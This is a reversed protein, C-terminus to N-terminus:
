QNKLGIFSKSKKLLQGCVSRHEHSDRQHAAEVTQRLGMRKRQNEFQEIVRVGGDSSVRHQRELM